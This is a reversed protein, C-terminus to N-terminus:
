LRNKYSSCQRPKRSSYCIVVFKQPQSLVFKNDYTRSTLLEFPTEFPSFNLNGCSQTGEPPELLYNREKGKGSTVQTGQSRVGKKMKLALLRVLMELDRRLRM